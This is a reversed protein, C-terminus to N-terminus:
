SLAGYIDFVLIEIYISIYWYLKAIETNSVCTCYLISTYLLV